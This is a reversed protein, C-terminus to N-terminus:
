PRCHDELSGMRRGLERVDDKISDIERNRGAIFTQLDASQQIHRSEQSANTESNKTITSGLWGVAALTIALVFSQVLTVHQPQRREVM